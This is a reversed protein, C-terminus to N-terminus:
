DFTALKLRGSAVWAVAIRDDLGGVSLSLSGVATQPDPTNLAAPSTWRAAESTASLQDNSRRVYVVDADNASKEKWSVAVGGDRGTDLAPCSARDDLSLTLPERGTALWSGAGHRHALQVRRSGAPSVELWSLYLDGGASFAMQPCRIVRGSATFVDEFSAPRQWDGDPQRTALFVGSEGFATPQTWVVAREGGSSIAPISDDLFMGDGGEAGPHDLSLQEDAEPRSFGGDLSSGESVFVNLPGGVSQYWSVLAEGQANIVIKPENTFLIAPSLLDQVSEPGHLEGDHKRVVAVGHRQGAVQSFVTVVEGEPGVAVDPSYASSEFSLVEGDQALPEWDAPPERHVGRILTRDNRSAEWVLAADRNEGTALRTYFLAEPLGAAFTHYGFVGGRGLEQAFRLRSEQLPLVAQWSLLVQASADIAVNVENASGM